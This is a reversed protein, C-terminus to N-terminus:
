GTPLLGHLLWTRVLLLCLAWVRAVLVIDVVNLVSLCGGVLLSHQPAAASRPAAKAGSARPLGDLMMVKRKEQVIKTDTVAQEEAGALYDELGLRQGLGAPM